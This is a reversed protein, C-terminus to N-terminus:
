SNRRLSISPEFAAPVPHLERRPEIGVWAEQPAQGAERRCRCRLLGAAANAAAFGAVSYPMLAAVFKDGNSCPDCADVGCARDFGPWGFRTIHILNMM